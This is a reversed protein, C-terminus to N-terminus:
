KKRKKKTDYCSAKLRQDEGFAHCNYLNGEYVILAHYHVGFRAKEVTSVLIKGSQWITASQKKKITEAWVVSGLLGAIVITIALINNQM